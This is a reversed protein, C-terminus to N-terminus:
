PVIGAENVAVARYDGKRASWLWRHYVDFRTFSDRVASKVGWTGKDSFDDGALIGGETLRPIARAITAITTRYDHSTDLYILDFSQTTNTLFTEGLSQVLTVRADYGLTELNTRAAARSPAPGFGAREWTLGPSRDPWDNCPADEFKDVGTIHVDTRGLGELIASMYAIDRGYYVGLVCIEQIRPDALVNEFFRWHFWGSYGRCM